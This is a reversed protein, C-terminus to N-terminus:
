PIAFVTLQDSKVPSGVFSGGTSVIAVYQKGRVGYSIPNTHASAPLTYTWVEKGNRIDFARFRSDDTGGSFVLGGATVIPGGTSPRGTRQKDAPLNESIGNTTRWVIKGSAVDIAFMEGWPGAQCPLRTKPDWFRGNLPGRNTFGGKGDPVIQQVQGLTFSNVVFLGRKADFAGGHWNVGGITGPFYVGPRNFPPPNYPGGFELKNDDVLKSCFAEHEPTISSVDARAFSMRSLPAPAVPFPQTPSVIEGPVSSKPVPREEIAHIPKGTVRDLIFMLGNKSVIGVAPITRGNRRVDFLTPPAEADNDWIDHHVIQFHWLYKGTAADAAVISSSFLNNGPRDVGVRDNAPAGFPMYVIGRKADVTM